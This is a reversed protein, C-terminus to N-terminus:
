PMFHLFVYCVKVNVIGKEYRSLDSKSFEESHVLGKIEASASAECGSLALLIMSLEEQKEPDL